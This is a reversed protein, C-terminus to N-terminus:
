EEVGPLLDQKARPLPLDWTKVVAIMQQKAFTELGSDDSYIVSVNNTKAIAVIQRDFIVKSWVEGQPNTRWNVKKGKSRLLDLNMVALEVAAKQDFSAVTFMNNADIDALYRPGDKDAPILFESLVPAPILITENDQELDDILQEIRDEVRTVPQGTAPDLPPRAKPHLLLSLFTNDLAIM